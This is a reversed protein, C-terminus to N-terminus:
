RKLLLKHALRGEEARADKPGPFALQVRDTSFAALKASPIKGEGSPFYQIALPILNLMISIVKPDPVLMHCVNHYRLVCGTPKKFTQAVAYGAILCQLM